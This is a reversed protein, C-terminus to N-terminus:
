VKSLIPLDSILRINSSYPSLGGSQARVLLLDDIVPQDLPIDAYTEIDLAAYCSKYLAEFLANLDDLSTIWQIKVLHGKINLM